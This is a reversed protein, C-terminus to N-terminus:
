SAPRVADARKVGTIGFGNSGKVPIWEDVLALVYFLPFTLAYVWEHKAAYGFPGEHTKKTDFIKLADICDSGFVGFLRLHPRFDVVEFGAREMKGRLEEVTYGYRVQYYDPLRARCFDEITDYPVTWARFFRKKFAPSRKLAWRLFRMPIRADEAPDSPVTLALRGGTKLVRNMERLAAEDDPIHEITCNSLVHDFTKDAFPLTGADGEQLQAVSELGLKRIREYGRALDRREIDVGFARAGRKALEITFLGDGSGVDLAVDGPKVDVGRSFMYRAEIRRQMFPLGLVRLYFDKLRSLPDTNDRFEPIYMQATRM